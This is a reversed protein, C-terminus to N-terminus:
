MAKKPVSKHSNAHDLMGALELFALKKEEETMPPEPPFEDLYWREGGDQRFPGIPRAIAIRSSRDKRCLLLDIDANSQRIEFWNRKTLSERSTKYLENRDCHELVETIQIKGNSLNEYFLHTFRNFFKEKCTEIEFFIIEFLESEDFIKGQLSNFDM